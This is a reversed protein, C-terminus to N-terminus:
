YLEEYRQKSFKMIWGNKTYLEGYLGDSEDQLREVIGDKTKVKLDFTKSSELMCLFNHMSTDVIKPIIWRMVDLQEDTFSTLKEQVAKATIGKSKKDVISDWDQITPDRVKEILEKGFLELVDM